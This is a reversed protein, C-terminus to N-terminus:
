ASVTVIARFEGSLRGDTAAGAVRVARRQGALPAGYRLPSQNAVTAVGDIADLDAVSLFATFPGTFSDVGASLAPGISILGPGDVLSDVGTVTVGNEESLAVSIGAGIPVLGPLVPADNSFASVQGAGAFFSRARVYMNFGSLTISEGLRNVVPTGVAYGEWAERQESALEKWAEASTKLALRVVQQRNTNPNTPLSRNRLYQGGKNHSAVVGGVSGSLQGGFGMRILM